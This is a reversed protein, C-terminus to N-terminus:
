WIFTVTCQMWLLWMKDVNKQKDPHDKPLFYAERAARELRDLLARGAYKEGDVEVREFSGDENMPICGHFLLNGNM